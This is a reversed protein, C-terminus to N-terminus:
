CHRGILRRWAKAAERNSANLLQQNLFNLGYSGYDIAIQMATLAACADNAEVKCLPNVFEIESSAVVPVGQDVLDAAVINFTESFSVQMGLDMQRALTLFDAHSYWPHEVLKSKSNKFLNRLNRLVSANPTSGSEGASNSIEHESINIHLFLPRKLERSLEEAWIAQQLHNKLPRLAGFLGIHLENEGNRVNAVPNAVANEDPYYLNPSYNICGPYLFSLEEFLDMSNASLFIDIGQKKLEVYQSLWEFAMGETALFPTKSHLRIHWRVKPHLKSLLKFKDPVVWLAEIFCDTPKFQSVERDIQNNDVVQIVKSEVGIENLYRSVFDCSNYLGYANTRQGYVFREKMIFLVRANTKGHGM